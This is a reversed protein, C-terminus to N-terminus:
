FEVDNHSFGLKRDGEVIFMYWFLMYNYSNHQMYLPPFVWEIHTDKKEKFMVFKLCCNYTDIFIKRVIVDDVQEIYDSCYEIAEYLYFLDFVMDYCEIMYNGYGPCRM